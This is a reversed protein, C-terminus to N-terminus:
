FRFYMDLRISRNGGSVATSQGFLTSGLVGVPPAMNPHNLVNQVSAGFGLSFKREVERKEVKAPAKPAEKADKTDNADKADKSPQPTKAPPAPPMPPGPLKPGFAFSRNLRLNTGIMDPGKGYNVPIIKQGAIPNADFVGWKTRYVSPRTLDTAFAPRDNFQTDGNLDQGVVINFPSSSQFTIFPSFSLKGPLGVYGGVTARQRLDNSARGYDQHLDYQNSPFSGMGSTDADNKGLMYFGFLGSRKSRVSGNLFFRQSKSVGESEYQYINQDNGLPRVGSAPNDPDYTGPLFANVNRTLFLHEGRSYLYNASLSVYKGLQKDASLSGMMTYPARLSPGLRYITPANQAAAGCNGANQSCTNPYFDPNSVVFTRQTTGNMREAQMLGGSSFRQYFFGYGARLVARPPKNKGGPVSWALALRPGFDAHDHMGTQSEFRLGYSFMWAPNLKWNDEAYLGVDAMAVAFGPTGLTQSFMSAGGGAARIAESGMGNQLGQMTIQYAALTAFTYRGNFNGTSYSSDRMARLRGGMNLDHQKHSIRLYDQLEYHDQNDRNVGINNGGGTFAGQVALTPALSQPSQYNRDRIYQFRTENLVHAGYAQADSFQLGQHMNHSDFAQSALQFQGVGSNTATNRSFDYRATITQVKGWQVDFRPSIYLSAAPTTIAQTFNSPNLSGDLIEANVVSESQADSRYLSAFYSMSKNIPGGLDGELQYSYYPPRSAVFTNEANWPSNNGSAWVSGHLKDTGPKTFIEIRSFGLSDYQASYPNQNIRIERISSKPPLKTGSFGDVYLQPGDQPDAGALAELQTQLEDPDDSLASLEEGKIVIAGGNKEPSNDAADASVVVQQEDAVIALKLTVHMEAGAAVQVTSRRASRFGPAEAEVGYQAPRLGNISFHGMADATAAGVALGSRTIVVTANPIVAGTPDTVTGSIAGTSSPSVLQASLPLLSFPLLTCLVATRLCQQFLSCFIRM